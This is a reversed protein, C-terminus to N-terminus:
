DKELTEQVKPAEETKHSKLEPQETVQVPDTSSLYCFYSCDDETFMARNLCEDSPSLLVISPLNFSFPNLDYDMAKSIFQIIFQYHARDEFSLPNLLM